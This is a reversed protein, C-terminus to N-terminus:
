GLVKSKVLYSKLNRPNRWCIMPRPLFKLEPVQQLLLHLTPNLSAGLDLARTYSSYDLKFVLPARKGAVNRNSQQRLLTTKLDYSFDHFCKRIFAAPYGRARLRKYFSLRIENFGQSTSERQAYRRLEGVLFAKKQHYPHWSSWPLYQYKNQIKQHCRTSLRHTYEFDEDKYFTIDLMDATTHSITHTIKITDVWTGYRTIWERLLDEPGTWIGFADDIYRRYYLMHEKSEYAAEIQDEQFCLFLCAYVVAFNSGMATGRTQRWFAGNFELYHHNLVLSALSLILEEKSRSFEKHIMSRLAHLGLDTPISPYLSEVDFTFLISQTPVELDSIERLITLSDVLHNRQKLLVPLLQHHLWISAHEFVYNNYSCIPRGVLTPKHVKPLFYLICARFEIPQRIYKWEQPSIATKYKRELNELRSSLEDWPVLEVSTYVEVQSLQRYGEQLYWSKDMLVLGLNKDAPKIVINTDKRLKNLALRLHRLLSPNIIHPM